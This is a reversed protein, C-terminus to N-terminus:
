RRRRRVFPPQTPPPSGARRVFDEVVWATTLTVKTSSHRRSTALSRLRCEHAGPAKPGSERGLRLEGRERRHPRSWRWRVATRCSLPRSARGRAAFSRRRRVAGPVRRGARPLRDAAHPLADARGLAAGLATPSRARRRPASRRGAASRCSCCTSRRRDGRGARRAAGGPRLRRLARGAAGDLTFVFITNPGRETGAVADHESAVAVVEGIPSELKGATSRLVGPRRRDGRRRQPRRARPHRAAPRGDVGEIARTTGSCAAAPSGGAHRRVPRHLGVGRRRTLAFASQGYWEVRMSSRETPARPTPTRYRGGRLLSAVAAVLCAVIAFAFAAHLGARFPGSILQPFFTRGTLSRRATRRCRASCTRRRRPAPDPQLRPVRRVPGVGAALARDAHPTPPPSATPRRPRDGAHAPLTAALGVIMLTFFIGVSLVQASNQFTQNM